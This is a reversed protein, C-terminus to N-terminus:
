TSGYFFSCIVTQIQILDLRIKTLIETKDKNEKLSQDIESIKKYEGRVGGSGFDLFFFCGTFWYIFFHQGSPWIYPGSNFHLDKYYSKIGQM